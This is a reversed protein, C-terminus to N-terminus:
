FSFRAGLRIVRPSVIEVLQDYARSNLQRERQLITDANFLNCIDLALGLSLGDGFHADKEIRLNLLQVDSLRREGFPEVQYQNPGFGGASSLLVPPNPYGDRLQFFGGVTWNRPLLYLGSLKFTYGANLFINGRGAAFSRLFTDRGDLWPINEPRFPNGPTGDDLSAGQLFDSFHGTHNNTTLWANAMWRHSLRKTLGVEIGSYTEHYFDNNATLM